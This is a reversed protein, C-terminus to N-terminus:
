KPVFLADFQQERAKIAISLAGKIPRISGDLGLEGVFVSRTLKEEAGQLMNLASLMGIALPLDYGSGEKRVDAPAFNVTYKVLPSNSDVIKCPVRWVCNAKACPM